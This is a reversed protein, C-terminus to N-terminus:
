AKTPTFTTSGTYSGAKLGTPVDLEFNVDANGSVAIETAPAWDTTLQSDAITEGDASGSGNMNAWTIGDSTANNDYKTPAADVFTVNVNGTNTVTHNGAKDMDGPNVAGFDMNAVSISLVEDVTVTDTTTCVVVSGLKFIVTYTGAATNAPVTGTGTCTKQLGDAAGATLSDSQPTGDGDFDVEATWTANPVTDGGNDDSVVLNYTVTGSSSTTPNPQTTISTGNCVYTSAVDGVTAGTSADGGMAPAIMALVMMGAMLIALIGKM